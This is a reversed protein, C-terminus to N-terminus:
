CETMLQRHQVFEEAVPCALAVFKFVIFLDPAETDFSTLQDGKMSALVPLWAIHCDNESDAAM